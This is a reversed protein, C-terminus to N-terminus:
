LGVSYFCSHDFLFSASTSTLLSPDHRPEAKPRGCRQELGQHRSWTCYLGMARDIFSWAPGSTLIGRQWILKREERDKHHESDLVSRACLSPWNIDSLRCSILWDLKYEKFAQIFLRIVAFDTWCILFNKTASPSKLERKNYMYWGSIHLSTSYAFQAAFKCITLLMEMIPTEWIYFGEDYSM